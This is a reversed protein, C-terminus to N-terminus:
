LKFEIWVIWEINNISTEFCFKLYAFRMSYRIPLPNTRTPLASTGCETCANAYPILERDSKCISQVGRYSTDIRERGMLAPQFLNTLRCNPRPKVATSLIVDEDTIIPFGTPPSDVTRSSDFGGEGGWRFILQERCPDEWDMSDVRLNIVKDLSM